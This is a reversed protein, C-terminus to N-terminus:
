HRVQNLGNSPGAKIAAALEHHIPISLATGGIPASDADNSRPLAPLSGASM